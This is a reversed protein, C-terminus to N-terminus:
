HARATCRRCRGARRSRPCSTGSSTGTHTHTLHATPTHPACACTISRIARDPYPPPTAPAHTSPKRLDPGYPEPVLVPPTEPNARAVAAFLAQTSLAAGDAAALAGLVAPAALQVFDPQKAREWPPLVVPVPEALVRAPRRALRALTALM